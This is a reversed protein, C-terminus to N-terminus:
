LWSCSQLTVILEEKCAVITYCYYKYALINADEVVAIIKRCYILLKGSWCLVNVFRLFPFQLISQYDICCYPFSNGAVWVPM